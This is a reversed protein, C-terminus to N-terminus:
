EKFTASHSTSGGPPRNAQGTSPLPFCTTISTRQTLHPLHGQVGTPFGESFLSNCSGPPFRRRAEAARAHNAPRENINLAARRKQVPTKGSLCIPKVRSSCVTLPSNSRGRTYSSILSSMFSSTRYTQFTRAFVGTSATCRSAPSRLLNSSLRTYSVPGRDLLAGSLRIDRLSRQCNPQVHWDHSFILNPKIMRVLLADHTKSRM